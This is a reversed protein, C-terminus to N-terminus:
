EHGNSTDSKYCAIVTKMVSHAMQNKLGAQNDSVYIQIKPTIASM